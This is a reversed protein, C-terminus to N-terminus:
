AIRVLEKKKFSDLKERMELIDAEDFELEKLTKFIEEVNMKSKNKNLTKSNAIHTFHSVM